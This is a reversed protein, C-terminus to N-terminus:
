YHFAAVGIESLPYIVTLEIDVVVSCGTAIYRNIVSTEQSAGTERVGNASEM